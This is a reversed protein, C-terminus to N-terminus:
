EEEVGIAPLPEWGKRRVVELFAHVIRGTAGWVVNGEVPYAFWTRHLGEHDAGEAREALALAAVPLVLVEDIEEPSPRIEPMGDLVGVFPRILYGSVVTDIPPLAGLVQFRDPSIGLEEETERLATGLLDPDDAHRVGGPFSIEGKHHRVRDTRRTFLLRPEEGELVPVMVAAPVGAPLVPDPRPPDLADRLFGGIGSVAGM